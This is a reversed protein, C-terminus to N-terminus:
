DEQDFLEEQEELETEEEFPLTLLTKCNTCRYYVAEIGIEEFRAKCGCLPCRVKIETAM